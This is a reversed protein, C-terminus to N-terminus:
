ALDSSFDKELPLKHHLRTELVAYLFLSTM